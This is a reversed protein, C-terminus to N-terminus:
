TLKDGLKDPHFMLAMKKYARGIEAESAEYSKDELGLTAYLDGMLLAEREIDEKTKKKRKKEFDKQQGESLKDPSEGKIEEDDSDEVVITNGKKDKNNGEAIQKRQM